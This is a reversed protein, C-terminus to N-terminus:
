SHSAHDHSGVHIHLKYPLADLFIWAGLLFNTFGDLQVTHGLVAFIM